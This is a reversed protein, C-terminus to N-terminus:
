WVAHLATTRLTRGCVTSREERLFASFITQKCRIRLTNAKLAFQKDSFSRM